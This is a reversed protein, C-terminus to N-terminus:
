HTKCSFRKVLIFIPLSIWHLPIQSISQFITITLLRLASFHCSDELCSVSALAIQSYLSLLTSKFCCFNEYMESFSPQTTHVTLLIVANSLDQRHETNYWCPIRVLDSCDYGPETLLEHHHSKIKMLNPGIRQKSSSSVHFKFYPWCWKAHRSFCLKLDQRLGPEPNVTTIIKLYICVM